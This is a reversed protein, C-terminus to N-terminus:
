RRNQCKEVSRVPLESAAETAGGARADMNWVADPIGAARAIDRFWTGYSRACVPLGHEGKVIAGPSATRPGQRGAGPLAPLARRLREAFNTARHEELHIYTRVGGVGNFQNKNRANQFAYSGAADFTNSQDHLRKLKLLRGRTCM